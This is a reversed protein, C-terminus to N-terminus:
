SGSGAPPDRVMRRARARAPTVSPAQRRGKARVANLSGGRARAEPTRVYIPTITSDDPSSVLLRGRLAVVDRPEAGVMFRKVIRASSPDIRQVEKSGASVAWVSGGLVTLARVEPGVKVDRGVEKLRVPDIRTVVRLDPHAVWLQGLGFVMPGPDKQTSIPTVEHTRPDVRVVWGNQLSVWVAGGGVVVDVPVGPVPIPRFAGTTLDWRDLKSHTQNCIWAAGFGAAVHGSGESFIVAKGIRRRTSTDFRSARGDRIVVIRRGSAAIDYAGAVPLNAAPAGGRRRPVRTVNSATAIWLEDSAVALQDPRLGVGFPRGVRAFRTPLARAPKSPPPAASERPVHWVAAICVGIGVAATLTWLMRHKCMPDRRVRDAWLAVALGAFLAVV